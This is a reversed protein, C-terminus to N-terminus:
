RTRQKDKIYNELNFGNEDAIKVLKKYPVTDINICDAIGFPNRLIIGFHFYMRLDKRLKEYDINDFDIYNDM